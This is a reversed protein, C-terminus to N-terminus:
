RRAVDQEYLVLDRKLGGDDGHAGGAISTGGDDEVRGGSALVGVVKEFECCDDGGVLVFCAVEGADFDGVDVRGFCGRLGETLSADLGDDDSEGLSAGPEFAGSDGGVDGGRPDGGDGGDASSVGEVATEGSAEREAQIQDFRSAESGGGAGEADGAGAGLLRHGGTGLNFRKEGLAAVVPAEM